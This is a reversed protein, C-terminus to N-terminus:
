RGGTEELWRAIASALEAFRAFGELHEKGCEIIITGDKMRRIRPEKGTLAKIVAALREADAERGGPADARAVAYGVAANISGRRGYTITYERVVRDVIHEGEVRGVEATIRIRLLPKGSKSEEPEASWGIVKVVYTKGNVEVKKEFDKLTLSGWAKGEEVIEKAKEYVACPEAGGCAEEARQLIIKVFDAALKRQDEDKGHVSLWAAYALGERRIYVYGTEGGEPMKVSFHVSRKLGRKELWQAVQEINGSNTTEYRVVLAGEVLRVKYRPWGEKLTLGKELKKLWRKAKGADVWGKEVAARVFEALADRLEKRGAALKNTSAEVRWEGRGGEKRKVEASVGALRLLHAALEARSRDTSHFELVIENRLYVNYKIKIDDASIILDAAVPGGETRRRLGEWSVDLGKAGLKMAEELKHKKLRDDGELLPAGYLLYRRALRVADNGSAVVHFAGRAKEVKTKISHAALAAAWLMAIKREGSTLGVVRMAASVHGDGGITGSIVAGFYRLTEENVGLREAQILLLAPMVVERAIKDDDLRSKLGELEELVRALHFGSGVKVDKLRKKVAKIVEDWHEAVWRKLDDWSKVHMIDELGAKIGLIKLWGGEASERIADDLNKLPAEVMVVLKPGELTLTM